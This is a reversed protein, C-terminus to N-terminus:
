RVKEVLTAPRFATMFFPADAPWTRNIEEFLYIRTPLFTEGYRDCNTQPM